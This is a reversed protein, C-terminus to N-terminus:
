TADIAHQILQTARLTTAMNLAAASSLPEFVCVGASRRGDGRTACEALQRVFASAIAGGGTVAVIAELM